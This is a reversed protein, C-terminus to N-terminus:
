KGYLSYRLAPRPWMPNVVVGNLWERYALVAAEQAPFLSPAEEYVVQQLEAYLEARADPDLERQAV